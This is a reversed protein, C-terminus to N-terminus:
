VKHKLSWCRETAHGVARGHYDCKANPDYSRPYLLELPKLPVVEVLKQELLLPLLETYTMPIPALAKPPRRTNQQATRAITAARANERPPSSLIYPIPPATALREKKVIRTEQRLKHQQKNLHVERTLHRARDERRGGITVMEREM